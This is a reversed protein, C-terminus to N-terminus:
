LALEFSSSLTRTQLARLAVFRQLASRQAHRRIRTDLKVRHDILNYLLDPLPPAAFRQRVRSLHPSLNLPRQRGLRILSPFSQRRLRCLCLSTTPFTATFALPRRYPYRESCVVSFSCVIVFSSCRFSFSSLHFCELVKM